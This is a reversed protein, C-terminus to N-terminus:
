GTTKGTRLTQAADLQDRIHHALVRVNPELVMSDHTGPVEIVDVDDCYRSWGNDHYIFRRDVNIQRNPGFVHLPDLKPRYLSITGRYPKTDYKDLARYFAAEIVTSHLTGEAPQEPGYLRRRRKDREWRYRNVAWSKVYGLGQRAVNDRQIKLRDTTTLPDNYSLPTDLFVLAAVEEGAAHLQQAMEYAALGGGSFGGLLYPGEPQVARVEALYAGAMEVFDDHPEEGGFLGRAQVGYFPRDSGILHALHRLNLVNGFMGAVLFFPTKPGGEGPHMAVLHRYRPQTSVVTSEAAAADAAADSDDGRIAGAPASAAIMPVSAEITPAEFLVSIPFEVSFLKKVKAFLRVAILSHGGLDFFSDRVGIQSIGLLEQWMEVLQEEVDNRPEVYESDLNPRAFVASSEGGAPALQSAAVEASQAQLALLDMSSVYMVGSRSGAVARDFVRKGEDPVIGQGLNHQFALESQSAQRDAAQVAEDLEVDVAALPQGAGVDLPGDLRKITFGEVAAVVRGDPDGLEVDFAAFGSAQSSGTSVTARAVARAGLRGFVRVTGYSLPVWLQEGTYGDILSMAFGTGLDAMGPHLGVTDPDGAFEDGLRLWAIATNDGRQVREVVDWRPGFRLFDQQPTRTEDRTPCAAEAAGIDIAAPETIERLLLAAEATTRWGRRGTVPGDEASTADLTVSERVSFRYGADNPSLVIEVDVSGGDPAALPRLFTLDHIEFPRVVGIEALAARALELYATGPLLSEGAATRHDDLFWTAETEWRARIRTVGRRDTSRTDFFPWAAPQEVVAEPQLRAAAEAAMGVENWVGWNLATVDNRGLARQNEAFANLFANAAVYDVQGIPATATSTSSFAVFLDLDEAGSTVADHLVLTGYVKPALVDDMDAATKTVLLGDDVVGAAHIVGNIAGFRARVEAAVEHMREVDTVDGDVLMVEAGRAELDRVAAIRQSAPHEDGLRAILEDWSDRPPLGSRSLLALRASRTAFLHAAIALGIGGLGGTVLVVGGERLRPTTDDPVEARRLAEVFRRGGRLAAIDSSAPATLEALVSRLLIERRDVRPAVLSREDRRRLLTTVGAARAEGVVDAVSELGTRLRSSRFLELQDIDFTSVTVDALERPIVRVPGLVTAQEPWQVLDSPLVRQSGMTAVSVHLPRQLGSSEWAQAILVLSQFGLEQNRHFFSSGPRFQQDDTALLALHAVRDPTRGTRVVDRLLSEYDSVGNEPAITYEDDSVAVFADGARVVVVEDGRDRLRRAMEDGVGAQDAFLLWSLGSPVAEAADSSKWVPEWFWRSEDPERDVYLGSSGTAAGAASSGPAIFFTQTQFPYTPLALRRRSGGPRFLRDRLEDHKPLECGAAWLRGVATLLFADDDVAEEPHRMTPIAAQTSKFDPNMRALSSLMKGPGVELLIRGPDDTLTSVCQAFFVTHRLHDVWYGPDCAQEATIWTGTRNSVWPTNPPSLSISDLYARFEGLIPELLRSHPPVSLKVRQAEVGDARLKAEFDELRAPDGSVVTLEPANVVALDLGHEDAVATLEDPPLPVVVAGGSVREVLRGRLVVLGLCDEFSMTGAICAATNEGLSHGAMADFEIGWHTLLKTLAYEVLFIAPLQNSTKELEAETGGTGLLLDRLDYGHERKLLDLGADLHEAFVPESRYLGAAMGVHQSGGGPFLLAIRRRDSGATHSFLRRPDRSELVAVAEDRDGVAAVRREPFHRRGHHLTWAVDALDQEPHDRLHAALQSSADDLAGKTKASLTLLLHGADAQDATPERVPPEELVAFANTGGVGLSNVAARRPSSGNGRWETLSDNVVFPSSDIELLPNPQEFNLSPPIAGNRMALAVKILSAVGAATDLHGINTKVSGIRCWGTRQEGGARFAQTLAAIEIPDGVPTGTGHCEVYSITAPDVEAVALAEAVCAAQGDVSPALYGVKQTGDNNVATGKIVAYIQDGDDIADQLRRLAVVGVGSGFVTGQSKHDFARCHGDPSLVEGEHYQYGHGHPIEITVGGALALDCEGSLLHQVGLHTAVLSTSCATQVNVSPGRLDFLYSARTALFDKDNGTHRLLFLGVDRVLDPNSRLNLTYYSGEGCGAFVGIAGDFSEPAHGSDELAEWVAMLFHRHQPDMIGGEKPSFGFFDPDFDFVGDLTGAAKVYGPRKLTERSVGAEILEDDSLQRVSEVGSCLNDWFETANRAGPLHAALGVIAIDNDSM